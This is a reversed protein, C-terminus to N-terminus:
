PLRSNSSHVQLNLLTHDLSKFVLVASAVQSPDLLVQVSACALICAADNKNEIMYKANWEKLSDIGFEPALLEKAGDLLACIVENNTEGKQYKKVALCYEVILAHIAPDLPALCIAAKLCKLVLVLKQKRLYVECGLVWGELDLPSLSHLPKIFKAAQGLFDVRELLKKGEPDEDVKKAVAGPTEKQPVVVVEVEKSKLDAKRMKRLAKKRDADSLLSLDVELVPNDFLHIYTQAAAKAAKVYFRHARLHDLSRLMDIYARLTMKRISYSHFDFQDDYIDAFHKEIQHFKKLAPGFQGQRQYSKGVAGTYWMCQMEILDNLPDQNQSRTFLSITEEALKIEDNQIMYKTCKSNVFRDQLDLLRAENMADMAASPNGAHKFIRAKTMLLEVVTPSHKIALNITDLAKTLQGEKDYFQAM